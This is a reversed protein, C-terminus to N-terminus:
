QVVRPMDLCAYKPLTVSMRRCMNPHAACEHQSITRQRPLRKPRGQLQRPEISDPQHRTESLPLREAPDPPHNDAHAHLAKRRADPEDTASPAKNEDAETTDAATRPTATNDTHHPCPDPIPLEPRQSSVFGAPKSCPSNTTSTASFTNARSRPRPFNRTASVSSSMSFGGRQLIRNTLTYRGDPRTITRFDRLGNSGSHIPNQFVRSQCHPHRSPLQHPQRPGPKAGAPSTTARTVRKLPFCSGSHASSEQVVGDM